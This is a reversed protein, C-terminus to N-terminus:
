VRGPEEPFIPAPDKPEERAVDYGALWGKWKASGKIYPNESSSKGAKATAYTITQWPNMRAKISDMIWEYEMQMPHTLPVGIQNEGHKLKIIKRIIKRGIEELNSRLDVLSKGVYALMSNYVEGNFIFDMYLLGQDKRDNIILNLNYVEGNFIFDMYLLGQDKRDNIILNLNYVEGNFIFDMYLLGQDKRDNIILNLNISKMWDSVHRLQNKAFAELNDERIITETAEKVIPDQQMKELAELSAPKLQESM